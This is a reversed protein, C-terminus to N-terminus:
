RDGGQELLEDIAQDVTPRRDYQAAAIVALVILAVFLSAVGATFLALLADARDELTVTQANM